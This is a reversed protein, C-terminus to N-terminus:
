AWVRIPTKPFVLYGTLSEPLQRSSRLNVLFGGVPQFVASGDKNWSVIKRCDGGLIDINWGESQLTGGEGYEFPERGQADEFAQETVFNLYFDTM